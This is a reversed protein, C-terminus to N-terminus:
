KHGPASSIIWPGSPTRVFYKAAWEVNCFLKTVGVRPSCLQCLETPVFTCIISTELYPSLTIGKFYGYPRYFIGRWHRFKKSLFIEVGVRPEKIRKRHGSEVYWFIKPAGGRKRRAGGAMFLSENRLTNLTCSPVRVKSCSNKFFSSM